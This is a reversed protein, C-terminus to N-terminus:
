PKPPEPAAPPAPPTKDAKKFWRTPHFIKSDWFNNWKEKWTKPTAEKLKAKTTDLEKALKDREATVEALENVYKKCQGNKKIAIGTSVAALIGLATLGLMNSSAKKKEEVEPEYTMPMTSYDQPIEQMPVQQKMAIANGVSNTTNISNM